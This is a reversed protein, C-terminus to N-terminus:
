SLAIPKGNVLVSGHTLLVQEGALAIVRKVSLGHDTPDRIVVIETRQPARLYFVWRNLLYQQSNELTPRMSEGVVKVSQVIFHSIFFYCGVALTIITITEAFRQFFSSQPKRVIASPGTLLLDRAPPVPDSDPM